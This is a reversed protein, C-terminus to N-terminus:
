TVPSLYSASGLRSAVAFGGVMKYAKGWTGDPEPNSPDFSDEDFAVIQRVYLTHAAKWQRIVSLITEIESVSASFDLVEEEGWTGPDDWISEPAWPYGHDSYIIVWCRAWLDERNDWNWNGPHQITFAGDPELTYWVGRNNVLRMRPAPNPAFVPQLQRLVTLAHGAYRWADLWGILRRAYKDIPENPGRIIRRDRGIYPVATLTGFTPYKAWLGEVAVQVISDLAAGCAYLFRFGVSQKIPYRDAFWPPVMFRVAARFSTDSM